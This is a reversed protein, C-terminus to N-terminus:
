VVSKRDGAGLTLTHSITPEADDVLTITDGVREGVITSFTSGTPVCLRYTAGKSTKKVSDIYLEQFTKGGDRSIFACDKGAQYLRSPNIALVVRTSLQGTGDFIEFARM